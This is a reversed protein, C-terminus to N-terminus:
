FIFIKVIVYSRISVTLIWLALTCMHRQLHAFAKGSDCVAVSVTRRSCQQWSMVVKGTLLASVM